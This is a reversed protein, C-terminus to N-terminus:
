PDTAHITGSSTQSRPLPQRVSEDVFAEMRMTGVANFFNSGTPTYASSISGGFGGEYFSKNHGLSSIADTSASMVTKFSDRSPMATASFSRLTNLPPSIPHPGTNSRKRTRASTRPVNPPEAAFDEENEEDFATTTPLSPFTAGQRTGTDTSPTYSQSGRNFIPRPKGKAVRISDRIPNRRLSSIPKQHPPPYYEQAPVPPFTALDSITLSSHSLFSLATLWVYHRERTMATFKLARQPTLILISRGFIISMSSTKPMPTDDKM